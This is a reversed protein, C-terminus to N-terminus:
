KKESSPITSASAPREKGDLFDLVSRLSQKSTALYLTDRRFAYDLSYNKPVDVNFYRIAYERYTQDSFKPVIDEVSVGFFYLPAISKLLGAESSLLTALAADRSTMPIAMVTRVNGANKVLYVSGTKDKSDQILAVVGEPFLIGMKQLLIKESISNLNDKADVFFFELVGDKDQAIFDASAKGLEVLPTKGNEEDIIIPNAIKWEYPFSPNSVVVENQTNTPSSNSVAIPVEESVMPISRSKWYVYGGWVSLGVLVVIGVIFVVRAVVEKTQRSRIEKARASGSGDRGSYDMVSLRNSLASESVVRSGVIPQFSTRQRMGEKPVSVEKQAQQQAIIGAKEQEKAKEQADIKQFELTADKVESGSFKAVPVSGPSPRSTIGDAVFFPSNQPVPEPSISVEKDPVNEEVSAVFDRRASSDPEKSAGSKPIPAFSGVPVVKELPSKGLDSSSLFTRIKTPDVVGQSSSSLPTLNNKQRGFM